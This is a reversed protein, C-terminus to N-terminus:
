FLKKRSSGKKKSAMPGSYTTVEQVDTYTPDYTLGCVDNGYKLYIYGADGWDTGWSNRVKWYGATSNIGVAQVCHDIDKGCSSVVGGTYTAWTSADLCISLPGTSLVFAKMNSEGKITYYGDVTVVGAGGTYTCEGTVDWYSTYPYNDDSTLGGVSYVYYYATETNGGDCGLDYPDCSVIQQESLLTGYSLYGARIADSEIQETASFAWCSGCYGQDRVANAYTGTWDVSTTTTKIHEKYNKDIKKFHSLSVDSNRKFNTYRKKIEDRSLDSFKTIGHQATGGARLEKANRIDILAMNRKFQELRSKEEHTGKYTRRYHRKFSDFMRSHDEDQMTSFVTRKKQKLLQIDSPDVVVIPDEVGNPDLPFDNNEPEPEPEDGKTTKKPSGRLTSHDDQPEPEPEPDEKKVTSHKSGQDNDHEPDDPQDPEPQPEDGSKKNQKVAHVNNTTIPKIVASKDINTTTSHGGSALVVTVIAASVLASGIALMKYTSPKKTEVDVPGKKLSKGNLLPFRDEIASSNQYSM